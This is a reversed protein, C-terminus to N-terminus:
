RCIGIIFINEKNYPDKVTSFIKKDKNLDDFQKQTLVVISPCKINEVSDIFTIDKYTIFENQLSAKKELNERQQVEKPDEDSFFWYYMAPRGYYRTFFIPLTKYKNKLKVTEIVAQKYGYQWDKFSLYRYKTFYLYIFRIFFMSYISFILFMLLKKNKTNKIKELFKKIGFSITTLYFIITSLTRLSHPADRVLSAPFISIFLISFLLPTNKNKTKFLYIIGLILFLADIPYLIGSFHTSHRYNGDGRIFLFSISFHKLFNTFVKPLILIYRHYIIKKIPEYIKSKQKLENSKIVIGPDNLITQSQFRDNVKKNKVNVLIPSILITFIFGYFIYKRLKIFTKRINKTQKLTFILKEIYLALLIAPAIFRTAHYTYASYAFTLISLFIHKDFFALGMLIFCTACNSEWAGRSFQISWPSITWLFLSILATTKDFRKKVFLYLFYGGLIGCIASPLRVIFESTSNTLWIFPALLYFYGSAKWDGFSEFSVIPLFHGHHDKLTQAISKSDFGLAVEEWYLSIPTQGLFILRIFASLLILLIVIKKHLNLRLKKLKKM